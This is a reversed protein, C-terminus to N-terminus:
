AISKLSTVEKEVDQDAIDFRMASLKYVHSGEPVRSGGQTDRVHAEYGLITNPDEVRDWATVTKVSSDGGRHVAILRGEEGQYIKVTTANPAVDFWNSEFKGDKPADYAVVLGDRFAERPISTLTDARSTEKSGIYIIGKDAVSYRVNEPGDDNDGSPADKPAPASRGKTPNPKDANSKGKNGEDENENEGKITAANDKAHDWIRKFEKAAAKGTVM